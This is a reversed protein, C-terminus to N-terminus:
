FVLTGDFPSKGPLMAFGGHNDLNGFKDLCTQARRDCGAYASVTQGVSLAPTGGLLTLVPGAHAKVFRREIVGQETEWEIFGGAFWGDAYAGFAGAEVTAGGVTLLTGDVRFVAKNIRCNHDYVAYPCSREWALTLGGRAMSALLSECTLEVGLGRRKADMLSGVWSVRADGDGRHVDRVVVAIEETPPLARMLRVLALDTPVTIVLGDSATDGSQRIGEDQIGGTLSQWQQALVTVDRDGSTYRWATPGYAFEYLRLPQGADRSHERADFTM